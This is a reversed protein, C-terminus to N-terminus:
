DGALEPARPSELLWFGIRDAFVRGGSMRTHKRSTFVTERWAIPSILEASAQDKREDMLASARTVSGDGPGRDIVEATGSEPDVALVAATDNSDGALLFLETGHPPTAPLDLARQFQGARRLMRGQYALALRRREEADEIDPLLWALLEERDRAALGWGAQQWLEPDLLDLAQSPDRADVVTGHRARPFLQYASPFTGNLMADYFPLGPVHRVGRIMNLAAKVAGGNPTAVLIVREVHRAGEWTLTPPSGDEPLPQPGYRLYYRTLLGGMSHAILDFRVERAPLGRRQRDQRCYAAKELIFDHLRRANESNDLRWDYAFQFSNLHEGAFDVDHRALDEDRYGAEGLARLIEYYPKLRLSLAKIRFSDLVGDPRVRPSPVDDRLSRAILRAGIETDPNAYNGGVAGWIVAGSDDDVLRTGLFGPIVIVPNRGPFREAAASDYFNEFDAPVLTALCGSLLVLWLVGAVWPLRRM